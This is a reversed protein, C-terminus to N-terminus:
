RHGTALASDEGTRALISERSQTREMFTLSSASASFSGMEVAASLTRWSSSAPRIEQSIWGPMRPAIFSQERLILNKGSVEPAGITYVPEYAGDLALELTETGPNMAVLMTDRKYAFIRSGLEASYVAFPSYNGLEPYQKRLAILGRVFNLMSGPDKEQDAVNPACDREDIPLYLPADGESFGKNKGSHWQMPTRCGTRRYAGEVTPLVRNIMGLEDGYYLFPAGPMTYIWAYALRCEDETLGATPRLMDHNCTILCYLGKDRTAEYKDTYDNLFRIADSGSERAFYGGNATIVEGDPTEDFDRMMTSYGNGRWELFFDM